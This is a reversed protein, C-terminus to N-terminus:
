LSVYQGPSNRSNSEYTRNAITAPLEAFDYLQLWAGAQIATTITVALSRDLNVTGALKIKDKQLVNSLRTSNLHRRVSSRDPFILVFLLNHRSQPWVLAM